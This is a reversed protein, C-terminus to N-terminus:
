FPEDALELDDGDHQTSTGAEDYACDNQEDLVNRNEHPMVGFFSAVEAGSGLRPPTGPRADPEPEANEQHPLALPQLITFSCFLKEDVHLIAGKDMFEYCYNPASFLTILCPDEFFPFDFGEMVAQHARCVLDLEFKALFDRVKEAGFFVSTGRDNPDWDEADPNPDSWVLDCLLGEEPIEIPRTINRIDDLTELHPSLGGHVCFIKRDVIAAIPLRRFVESFHEWREVGTDPWYNTCEDFFGYLRNIYACEHNGRLMYFTDPHQIKYALLLCLTEVSNRGRDIYDGLFLFQTNDPTKGDGFIRIVDHFQGHTDGVVTIPARLELLIPQAEFIPMSTDCLYIVEEDTLNARTGVPRSSISLLKDIVQDLV